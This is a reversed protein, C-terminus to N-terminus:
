NTYGGLVYRKYFNKKRLTQDAILAAPVSAPSLSSVTLSVVAADISIVYELLAENECYFQSAGTRMNVDSRFGIDLGNTSINSMTSINTFNGYATYYTAVEKTFQRAAGICTSAIADDRTASLKQIAVSALIGIIVIVFILEIMTFAKKM